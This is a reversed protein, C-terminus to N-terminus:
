INSIKIQGETPVAKFIQFRFNLSKLASISSNSITVRYRVLFTILLKSIKHIVDWLEKQMVFTQLGVRINHQMQSYTDQESSVINMNKNGLISFIFALQLNTIISCFFPNDEGEEKERVTLINM